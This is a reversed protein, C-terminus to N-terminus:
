AAVMEQEATVDEYDVDDLFQPEDPLGDGDQDAAAGAGPPPLMGATQLSQAADGAQGAIAAVQAAEQALKQAKAAAIQTQAEAAMEADTRRWKAPIGIGRTVADDRAIQFNVRPVTVGLQSAGAELQAAEQFQSALIRTSAEQLPNKFSWSIDAGSLDDTIRQPDFLNMARLRFFTKDLLRGNYEHEMPEFLPLLNRVHEELRARIETATMKDTAEPLALKDIFFAKTLMDRLDARMAFATRMDANINIPQAAESLKRDYALDAWTIAGAKLNIERIAEESALMPPDVMKEGAELIMLGMAQALRGDPLAISTCPSVAYQLGPLTQWRPVVFIFDPSPSERLVMGNDADVYIMVYPARKGGKAPKAGPGTYDYEDSPMMICRVNFEASPDKKVADLVTRHVKKEGFRRIMNRGLMRDKRHLHDVDGIDNELWACDRLHHARYYIHSRDPGEEVSIVTQGFTIFDHDGEKTARVFKSRMDYMSSRMVGTVYELSQANEPIQDREDDLSSASFWKQDRPRLTASIANGLDRRVITPYSDNLHDAHDRGLYDGTMTFTARVPYFQLAIEQMLSNLPEKKSFLKNGLDVLELARQDSM